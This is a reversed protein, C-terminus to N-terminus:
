TSCSPGKACYRPSRARPRAAANAQGVSINIDQEANSRLAQIGQTTANLQQALSQAATVASIVLDAQAIAESRDSALHVGDRAARSRAEAAWRADCILVDFANVSRVGSQVLAASFIRGVEGYGVVAVRLAAVDNM